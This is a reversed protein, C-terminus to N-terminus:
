YYASKKLKNIAEAKASMLFFYIYFLEEFEPWTTISFVETSFEERFLSETWKVAQNSKFFALV